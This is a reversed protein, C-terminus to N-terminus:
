LIKIWTNGFRNKGNKADEIDENIRHSVKYYGDTPDTFYTGLFESEVRFIATAFATKGLQLILNDMDALPMLDKPMNVNICQDALANRTYDPLFRLHFDMPSEYEMYAKGTKLTQRRGYIEMRFVTPLGDPNQGYIAMPEPHLVPNFRAEAALLKPLHLTALKHCNVYSFVNNRGGTPASFGTVRKVVKKAGFVPKFYAQDSFIRTHKWDKFLPNLLNFVAEQQAWYYFKDAEKGVEGRICYQVYLADIPQAEYIFNKDFTMRLFRQFIFHVIEIQL